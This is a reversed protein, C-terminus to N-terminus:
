AAALRAVPVRFPSCSVYDLGARHCFEVSAPDGGHEGCIGVKLDPRTARGERVAIEVLRGVGAVDISEFPNVKLLGGDLYKPLFKGEVDDRSFGYTTQTLDNTGFSFFDAVEAIEAAVLAARPLEIMTGILIDLKVKRKALVEAIVAEAVRRMREVETRVAVLPIMIEIVPQKRRAKVECAAEVIARVQMGYLRPHVIGLRVGRMGLMPNSEELRTVSALLGRKTAIEEDLRVREDKKARRREWELRQLDLELDKSPPLFEHLPPDLLRITVPLGSMAEFIGAFDARQVELLEELAATEEEETEALIMRQVIPLRPGLFMHETRALGIGQAGFGRAKASDEPTDANTRVQLRRFGDAWTLIKELDKSLSPSVLPVEGIAIRGTSGDIAIVDGEKVVKGGVTFQRRELDIKLAEAGSVCPKGAGRAVVAAHSTKGGRSTLIGQSAYMGGVDDPETMPRVLIVKEGAAAWAEATDADFVAKGVAAGPSANLGQCVVDIESAPDFQPHLLQDLSSPDIRLVAEEKTILKERVMHVAIKVAAQMTRKGIRTQLMWLKGNEVTFEIDCMDRYHKELVNMIRVLERFSTRDRSKLEELSLPTRAGSVVDEGQAQTLYEALYRKDGTSADRTFAVGTGSNEGVNGFVMTVINVGTGLDDAIKNRRRYIRARDGNWSDFVARIAMRLQEMPDDPFSAGTEADVIERFRDVLEKLDELGLETDATVGQREKLREIEREFAEGSVGMVIRGFMQIFRRYADYAFRRDGYALALGEVSSDNLGLNLVTDMMGPMSFKAGSRVSVLLPNKADGFRKGMKKELRRMHKAAEDMLGSPFDGRAMYERCADTSITFGPPVPMGLNTMEALNAGKGGLLDKQDRNGEEFDFVYGKRRRRKSARAVPM